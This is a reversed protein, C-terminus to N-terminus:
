RTRDCSFPREEARANGPDYLREASWAVLSRPVLRSLFVVAKNMLGPVCRERGRKLAAVAIRAARAPEMNVASDLPIKRDLGSLTIMETAIGGPAFTCFFVGRGKYERALGEMFVHMAHKTAGYVNQFPTTVLAALSTVTLIAGGGRQLFVGLFLAALRMGALLNVAVIGESTGPPADLTRGYWTIGACNVLGFVEGFGCAERFLSDPGDAAALDVTVIHVRSRSRGELDAKLEELRERRRAAVVLDAGEALALRRAIERGLGSSAGTVVVLKGRFDIRKM